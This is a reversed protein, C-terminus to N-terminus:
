RQLRRQELAEDAFSCLTRAQDVANFTNEFWPSPKWPGPTLAFFRLMAEDVRDATDEPYICVNPIGCQALVEDIPSRKRIFALIPRGLRVYEFLKGPVQTDSQPQILMMGAAERSM